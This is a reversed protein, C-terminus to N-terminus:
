TEATGPQRAPRPRTFVGRRLHLIAFGVYSLVLAISLIELPVYRQDATIWGLEVMDNRFWAVSLGSMNHLSHLIMGPLVSNSKYALWGLVIGMATTPLFRSLGLGSTTILHFMGFMIGTAFITLSPRLASSRLARFLLGRFFLEECIAPVIAFCLMVMVWPASRLREAQAEAQQVLAERTGTGNGIYELWHGSSAIAQLLLPALGLGLLAAALYCWPSTRRVNFGPLLRVRHFVALIGPILAFVVIIGTAVMIFLYEVPLHGLRGLLGQWLFSAPFLLALCLMALSPSAAPTPQRPRRFLAEIGQDDGYLVKATGFFRAAVTIALACYFLTAVIAVVGTTWRATGSLVDRSLLVINVLPTIAWIGTLKLDPKLSMLAPALALMMVPILYAQGEKFSRAFSTIVLLVSAFFAAFLVLLTLIKLVAVLSLGQDGLLLTDLQFVWLTIMMGTINVVATLMAVAVIAALKGLLIRMRPIPAAVLSELTGREREGATLDIAPYVAGTITMLTLILPILAALSIPAEPKEPAVSRSGIRIPLRADIGRMVAMRRLTAVNLADLMRELLRVADVSTLIDDRYILEFERPQGDDAFNVKIAVDAQNDRISDELSKDSEAPLAHFLHKGFFNFDIEPRAGDDVANNSDTATPAAMQQLLVYGRNLLPAIRDLVEPSEVVFLFQRGAPAADTVEPAEEGPEGDPAETEQGPQIPATVEAGQPARGSQSRLSSSLFGQFLLSLIPYVLLPMLFLTIITRRDRLTERLEKSALRYVSIPTWGTSPKDPKALADLEPQSM